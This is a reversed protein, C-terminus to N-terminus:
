CLTSAVGSDIKRPQVVKQHMKRDAEPSTILGYGCVLFPMWCSKLVKSILSAVRKPLYMSPVPFSFEALRM